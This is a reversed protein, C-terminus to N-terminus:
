SARVSHLSQASTHASLACFLGMASGPAAADAGAGAGAGACCACVGCRGGAASAGARGAAGRTVWIPSSGSRLRVPPLGPAAARAAEAPGPTCGGSKPALNASALDPPSAACATVV